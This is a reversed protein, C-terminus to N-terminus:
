LYPYDRDILRNGLMEKWFDDPISSEVSEVNKKV